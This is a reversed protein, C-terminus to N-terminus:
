RRKVIRLVKDIREKPGILYLRGGLGVEEISTKIEGSQSVFIASVDRSQSLEKMLEPLLRGNSIKISVALVRTKQSEYLVNTAAGLIESLEIPILHYPNIIYPIEEKLFIEYNLPNNIISITLPIANEKAIRCYRLNLSDSETATIVADIISGNSRIYNEIEDIEQHIVEAFPFTRLLADVKESTFEIIILKGKPDIERIANAAFCASHGGGILLTRM